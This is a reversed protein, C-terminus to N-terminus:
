TRNLVPELARTSASGHLAAAHLWSFGVSARQLLPLHAADRRSGLLLRQRSLHEVDPAPTLSSRSLADSSRTMTWLTKFSSSPPFSPTSRLTWLATLQLMSPWRAPPQPHACDLWSNALVCGPNLQRIKAAGVAFSCRSHLQIRPNTLRSSLRARRQPPRLVWRQNPHRRLLFPTQLHAFRHHAGAPAPLLLPAAPPCGSRSCPSLPLTQMNTYLCVGSDCRSVPTDAASCGAQLARPQQWGAKGPSQAQRAGSCCVLAAVLAAFQAAGGSTASGFLGDPLTSPFTAELLLAVGAGVM